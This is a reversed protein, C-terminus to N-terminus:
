YNGHMPCNVNYKKMLDNMEKYFQAQNEVQGMLGNVNGNPKAKNTQANVPSFGMAFGTSIILASLVLGAFIKYVFKNNKM